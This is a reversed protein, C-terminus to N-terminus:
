VQCPELVWVPLWLALLVVVSLWAMVSALRGLLTRQPPAARASYSTVLALALGLALAAAPVAHLWPGAQAACALPVLAFALAQEGLALLPAIVLVPSTRLMVM